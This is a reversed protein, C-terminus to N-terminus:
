SINVAQIMNQSRSIHRFMTLDRTYHGPYILNTTGLQKLHRLRQFAATDIIKVELPELEIDMQVPDRITKGRGSRISTM